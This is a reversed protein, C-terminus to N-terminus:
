LKHTDQSIGNFSLNVEVINKELLFIFVNISISKGVFLWRASNHSVRGMVERMIYDSQFPWMDYTRRGQVGTWFALRPYSLFSMKGGVRFNGLIM